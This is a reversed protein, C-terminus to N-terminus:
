QVHVFLYIKCRRSTAEGVGFAKLFWENEVPAGVEDVKVEEM